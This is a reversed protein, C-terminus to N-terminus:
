QIQMSELGTFLTDIELIFQNYSNLYFHLLVRVGKLTSLSKKIFFGSFILLVPIFKLILYKMIM